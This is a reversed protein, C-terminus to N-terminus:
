RRGGSTPGYPQSFTSISPTVSVREGNQTMCGSNQLFTITRPTVALLRPVLLSPQSGSAQTSTSISSQVKSVPSSQMAMLAPRPVSPKAGGGPMGASAM